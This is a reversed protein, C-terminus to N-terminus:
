LRAFWLYWRLFALVTAGGCVWALATWVSEAWAPGHKPLGAQWGVVFGAALGGIHAGNDIRLGPLFGIALGYIAYRLYAARMVEMAPGEHKMTLALLAGLLGFIGASAGVSMGRTWLASVGFGGLTAATYIVIMRRPGYLREVQSGLDMLGYGNMFIHLLGGHLFGATLLRWWQGAGIFESLKAGFRLLTIGDPGGFLANGNGAKSSAVITAVYLGINLLLFLSTVFTESPIFGSM